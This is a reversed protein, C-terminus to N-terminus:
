TVQKEYQPHQYLQSSSSSHISCISWDSSPIEVFHFLDFWDSSPIEVISFLISTIILKNRLHDIKLKRCAVWLCTSAVPTKVAENLILM